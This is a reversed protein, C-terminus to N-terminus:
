PSYLIKHTHTNNTKKSIKSSKEKMAENELAHIHLFTKLLEMPQQQEHLEDNTEKREKSIENSEDLSDCWM